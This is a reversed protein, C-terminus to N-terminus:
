RQLWSLQSPPVRNDGFARKVKGVIDKYEDIEPDNAFDFSRGAFDTAIMGPEIVKMRIGVSALEFHLAESLGEVAFKTGHYLTGSPFDSPRWHFQYQRNHRERRERM